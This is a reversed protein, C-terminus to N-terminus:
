KNDGGSKPMKDIAYYMSTYVVLLDRVEKWGEKNSETVDKVLQVLEDLATPKIMKLDREDMGPIKRAIERLVSWFEDINRVKDMKYLLSANNRSVKAIINGVSKIADLKEKPIGMRKWRWWFILEELAQRVESSFVVYGGKRPLLCNTFGRFNDLLFFKSLNEQIERTTEWDVSKKNNSHFYMKSIIEKYIFNCKEGNEYIFKITGLIGREVNILDIKINKVAGFPIQLVAWNEALVDDNAANKIFTEYFCLLTSYEGPTNEVDSSAPNVRINSYRATKNLIGSYIGSEKFENLEKLSAFYPLFLFSKDGPFTRYVVAEDTWELIGILYCLPCLNDYYEKLSLVKGNKYSRVGSLSAIKTVFPYNAQQLKKVSRDFTRGCLICRNKGEKLDFVKQVIGATKEPKYLEEKFAVKGGVKKEEQLILHDKKVEKIEGTKENKEIVLLNLRKEIIRKALEQVFREKNKIELKVSIDTLEVSCSDLSKLIRYFNELANDMWPDKYMNFEFIM